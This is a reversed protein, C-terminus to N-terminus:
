AAVDEMAVKVLRATASQVQMATVVQELTMRHDYMRRLIAKMDQYCTDCVIESTAASPTVKRLKGFIAEGCAGCVLPKTSHKIHTAM